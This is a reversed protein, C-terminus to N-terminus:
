QGRAASELKTALTSPLASTGGFLYGTGIEEHNAKVIANIGYSGDAGDAALLLVSGIKGCLAGGALADPFNMGTATGLGHFGLNQTNEVAYTAILASTQYRSSGGLRVFHTSDSAAYGLQVKVKDPVAATGGVIIVKTFGGGKLATVSAADLGAVPDSLFVPAKESFAFPSISLADAYNGGNAIIATTGWSGQGLRHIREATEYRSGGACRSITPVIARIQAFVADTVSASGGVVIIRKVSLDRLLSAAESSLTHTNTLLVPADFVGALASAALADPFNDGTAVIAVDSKTWGRRVIKEMTQYRDNGSLRTWSSDVPHRPRLGLQSEAVLEDLAEELEAAMEDVEAQTYPPPGQPNNAVQRAADILAAMDDWQTPTVWRM